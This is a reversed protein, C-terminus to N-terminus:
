IQTTQYQHQRSALSQLLLRLLWSSLPLEGLKDHSILYLVALFLDWQVSDRVKLTRQNLETPWTLQGKTGGIPKTVLMIWIVKM